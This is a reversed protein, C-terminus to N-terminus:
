FKYGADDKMEVYDDDKARWRRFAFIGAVLAGAALVAGGVAIGVTAGVSLGGGGATAASRSTCATSGIQTTQTDPPCAQCEVAGEEPNFTNPGCPHCTDASTASPTTSFTGPLCKTLTSDGVGGSGFSGPPIPMCNSTGTQDTFTGVPCPQCLGGTQFNKYRGAPCPECALHGANHTHGDPCATCSGEGSSSYTGPPCISCAQGTLGNTSMGADCPQCDSKDANNTQGAPCAVCSQQGAPSWTGTPCFLCAGGPSGNFTGAACPQCGSKDANNTQGEPCAVCIHAEPAESYSGVACPRCGFLLSGSSSDSFIKGDNFTGAPCPVTCSITGPGSTTFGAPCLTCFLEVM